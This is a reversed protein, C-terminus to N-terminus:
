KEQIINQPKLILKYRQGLILMGGIIIARCIGPHGFKRVFIILLVTGTIGEGQFRM